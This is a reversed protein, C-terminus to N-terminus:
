KYEILTEGEIAKRIYRMLNIAKHEKNFTATGIDKKDFIDIPFMYKANGKENFIEYYLIGCRYHSFKAINGKIIKLM